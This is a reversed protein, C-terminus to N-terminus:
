AQQINPKALAAAKFGIQIKKLRFKTTGLCYNEGTQNYCTASTKVVIEGGKLIKKQPPSTLLRNRLQPKETTSYSLFKYMKIAYIIKSFNM